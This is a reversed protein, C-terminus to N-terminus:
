QTQADTQWWFQQNSEDTICPRCLCYECEEADQNQEIVFDPTDPGNDFDGSQERQGAETYEWDNHTFLAEVTQRQEETMLLQVLFRENNSAESHDAM